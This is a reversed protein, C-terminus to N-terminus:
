TLYPWDYLSISILETFCFLYFLILLRRMSDFSMQLQIVEILAM